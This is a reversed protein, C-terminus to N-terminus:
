KRGRKLKDKHTVALYAVGGLVVVGGLVLGGVLLYKPLNASFAAVGALAGLSDQIGAKFDESAGFIAALDAAKEPMPMIGPANGCVNFFERTLANVTTTEAVTCGLIQFNPVELGPIRWVDAVGAMKERITDATPLVTVVPWVAAVVSGAPLPMSQPLFAKPLVVPM